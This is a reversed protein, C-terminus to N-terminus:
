PTTTSTGDWRTLSTQELARMRHNFETILLNQRDVIVQAAAQGTDVILKALTEPGLRLAHPQLWLGTMAGLGDVAVSVSKDHSTVRASM